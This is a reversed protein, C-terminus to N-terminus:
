ATGATPLPHATAALAALEAAKAYDAEALARNGSREYAVGRHHYAAVFNPEKKIAAALDTIAAALDGANMRALGRAFYAIGAKSVKIARSYDDIAQQVLNKAEFVSGRGLLAMVNKPEASIATSYDAIARDFEKTLHFANARRCLVDVFAPAIELAESYRAIAADIDGAREFELAAEAIPVAKDQRASRRRSVLISVAVIAAVIWLLYGFVYDLLSIEYGPLPKPLLGRAQFQEITAADLKYYRKQGVVGLIYGDDSLYYPAIFAHHTFKYGLYLAEGDRGKIAVDVIKELHEQDGFMVKGARAEDVPVVLMLLLLVLSAIAGHPPRIGPVAARRPM